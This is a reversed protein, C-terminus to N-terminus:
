VYQFAHIMTTLVGINSFLYFLLILNASCSCLIVFSSTPYEEFIGNIAHMENANNRTVLSQFDSGKEVGSCM